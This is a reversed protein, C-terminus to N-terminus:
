ESRSLEKDKSQKRDERQPRQTRQPEIKERLPTGFEAFSASFTLFERANKKSIQQFLTAQEGYLLTSARRRDNPSTV